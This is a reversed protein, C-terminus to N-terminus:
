VLVRDSLVSVWGKESYSRMNKGQFSIRRGTDWSAPIVLMCEQAQDADTNQCNHIFLATRFM